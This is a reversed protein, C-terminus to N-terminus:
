ESGPQTRSLQAQLDWQLFDQSWLRGRRTPPHSWSASPLGSFGGLSATDGWDGGLGFQWLWGWVWMGAKFCVYVCQFTILLLTPSFCSVWMISMMNSQWVVWLHNLMRQMEENIQNASSGCHEEDKALGGDNESTSVLEDCESENFSLPTQKRRCNLSPQNNPVQPSM